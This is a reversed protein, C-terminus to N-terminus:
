RIRDPHPKCVTGSDIEYNAIGALAESWAKRREVAIARAQRVSLPQIDAQAERTQERTKDAPKAPLRLQQCGLRPLTNGNNWGDIARFSNSTLRPLGIQPARHPDGARDPHTWWGELAQIMRYDRELLEAIAVTQEWRKARDWRAKSIEAPKCEWENTWTWCVDLLYQWTRTSSHTLSPEIDLDRGALWEKIGESVHELDPDTKLIHIDLPELRSHPTFHAKRFLRFMVAQLHEKESEDEAKVSLLGYCLGLNFRVARWDTRWHLATQMHIRWLGVRRRRRSWKTTPTNRQCKCYYRMSRVILRTRLRQASWPWLLRAPVASRTSRRLYRWWVPFLRTRQATMWAVRVALDLLDQSSPSKQLRQGLLQPSPEQPTWWSDKDPLWWREEQFLRLMTATSEPVGGSGLWLPAGSLGQVLQLQPEVLLPALQAGALVQETMCRFHDNSLAEQDAKRLGFGAVMHARTLRIRLSLIAPEAQVLKELATVQGTERPSRALQLLDALREASSWRSWMPTGGRIPEHQVVTQYTHAAALAGLRHHDAAVLHESDLLRGSRRERIELTLALMGSPGDVHLVSAVEFGSEPLLVRRLAGGIAAVTGGAGEASEVVPVVVDGVGGPTRATPAIKLEALYRAFRARFVEDAESDDGPVRRVVQLVDVPGPRRDLFRIIWERVGLLLISTPLLWFLTRVAATTGDTVDLAVEDDPWEQALPSRALISTGAVVRDSFTQTRFSRLLDRACATDISANAQAGGTGLTPAKLDADVRGLDDLILARAAELEGGTALAMAAPAVGLELCADDVDPPSGAASAAWIWAVTLLSAAVLVFRQPLRTMSEDGYSM